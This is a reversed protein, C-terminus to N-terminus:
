EAAVAHDDVEIARIEIAGASVATALLQYGGATAMAVFRDMQVPDLRELGDCVLIKSKANARRAIEVAFSMQEAGCLDDIRKGDLMVEDGSLSLGPIGEAAALLERPADNGLRRVTADLEAADDELTRLVTNAAEVAAVAALARAQLSARDLVAQATRVNAQAATFEAESPDTVTAASLASALADAQSRMVNVREVSSRVIDNSRAAAAHRERIASQAAEAEALVRRAHRVNEDAEVLETELSKLDELQSIRLTMEDAEGRLKAIQERQGATRKEAACAESARNEIAILEREAVALAAHAEDAPLLPGPTVAASAKQAEDALRTATAKAEAVDKNALTREAYYFQRAREVVELGHGSVDFDAAIDPAYKQLQNLSVSVPLAALILARRDKPKELFLALPDLPSSGVLDTLFTQPRKAQMGGREVSVTSSKRTTVRTVTVDDIDILIEARDAGNRIADPSIKQASLASRIAHLISSKGLGNEGRAVFGAPPVAIERAEIGMFNSVRIKTIKM